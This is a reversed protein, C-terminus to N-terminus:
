PLLIRGPAGLTGGETHCLNCDASPQASAMTLTRGQYRVTASRIPLTLPTSSFFNGATNAIASVVQGDHDVVSVEIPDASMGHVGDCDDPEHISPYVTGAMTGQPDPPNPATAHCDLCARGPHMLPSSDDGQTWHTGSTCTSPGDWPTTDTCVSTGAPMGASIWDQLVAIQAATARPTPAPPMRGASMEVVCLDAYTMTTPAAIATLQAYTLLPFPAGTQPPETHCLTCHTGLLTEVDCPLGSPAHVLTADPPGADTGADVDRAGDPPGALGRGEDACAALLLATAWAARAAGRLM